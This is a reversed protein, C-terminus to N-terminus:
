PVNFDPYQMKQLQKWTEVLLYFYYFFNLLYFQLFMKHSFFITIASLAIGLYQMPDHDWVHSWAFKHGYSYLFTM